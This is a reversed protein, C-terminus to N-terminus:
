KAKSKEITDNYERVASNYEDVAANAADLHPKALAQEDTVFKKICDVYAVFDKRWANKQNESALNGPFEPKQCNHKPVAGNAPAPAPAPTQAAVAGSLAAAAVLMPLSLSRSM